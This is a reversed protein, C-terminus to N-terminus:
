ADAAIFMHKVNHRYFRNSNRSKQHNRQRESAPAPPSLARLASSSCLRSSAARLGAPGLARSSRPESTRNVAQPSRMGAVMACGASQCCACRMWITLLSSHFASGAVYQWRQRWFKVYDVVPGVRSPMPAKTECSGHIVTRKENCM